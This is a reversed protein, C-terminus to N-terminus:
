GSEHNLKKYGKKKMKHYIRFTLAYAKHVYNITM